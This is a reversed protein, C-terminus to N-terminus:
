CCPAQSPAGGEAPPSRPASRLAPPWRDPDRLLLDCVVMRHDSHQTKEGRVSVVAFHPSTWVQDIRLFPFDNIITNGWGRGATRFADHLRPQLLRFVRDGPPANMDGGIVLPLGPPLAAIRAAVAEMQAYRLRRNESQARWCDPNWLDMRFLPPTLRVSIVQIEQGSRLRVRAEVFCNRWGLAPAAPRVSGRALLSTDLNLAIGADRGFLQQGLRVVERRGPAEQLLVIDPQFASVEM